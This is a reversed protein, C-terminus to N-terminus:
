FVLVVTGDTRRTVPLLGVREVLHKENAGCDCIKRVYEKQDLGESWAEVALRRQTRSGRWGRPSSPDHTRARGMGGRQGSLLVPGEPEDQPRRYAVYAGLSSGCRSCIAEVDVDWNAEEVLDNLCLTEQVDVPV